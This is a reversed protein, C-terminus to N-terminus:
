GFEGIGLQEFQDAHVTLSNKAEPSASPAPPLRFTSRPPSARSALTAGAVHDARGDHDAPDCRALDLVVGRRCVLSM